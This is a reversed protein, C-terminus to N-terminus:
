YTDALREEGQSRIEQDKEENRQEKERKNAELDGINQFSKTFLPTM